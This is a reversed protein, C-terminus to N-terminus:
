KPFTDMLLAFSHHEHCLGLIGKVSKLFSQDQPEQAPMQQSQCAMEELFWLLYTLILLQAIGFVSQCNIGDPLM